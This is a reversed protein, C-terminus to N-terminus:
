IFFYIQKNKKQKIKRPLTKIQDAFNKLLLLFNKKM